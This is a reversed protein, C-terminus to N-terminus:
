PHDRVFQRVKPMIEERWHSGSFVGYHGVDPQVYHQRMRRPLSSCLAHAAETQGPGAIDDRGGEITFIATRKIASPDVPTEGCVMVGRALEHEQFVSRVTQLYFEATVDMVAFYEDYFLRHNWAELEEGRAVHGYFDLHADVHRPLNMALFGGLQM